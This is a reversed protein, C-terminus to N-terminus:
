CGGLDSPQPAIDATRRFWWASLQTLVEGKRPVPQRMVVDFASVRDSALLLLLDGVEYVDRVKGERHRPFPLSSRSVAQLMSLRPTNPPLLHARLSGKSRHRLLRRPPRIPAPARTLLRLRAAGQGRPVRGAPRCEAVRGDGDRLAASRHLPPWPSPHPRAAMRAATRLRGQRDGRGARAPRAAGSALVPGRVPERAHLDPFLRDLRQGLACRSPLRPSRRAGPRRPGGQMRRNWADPLDDVPLDGSLLARELDFRLMIHLNYTVEDSDVRILSPQVRNVVRFMQEPTFGAVSNGFLRHATPLAWRWFFSSRGVMNEWLRSQSEHIGLSASQGLPEGFHEGTPLGQEYLGHGAEHMSSSLADPFGIATYRTTLRTDGPGIDSCFPHTSTDLRGAQMSFGLARVVQQNFEVQAPIPIPARMPAEDPTVSSGAVRDILQRVRPRLADFTAQIADSRMGPEYDELLADYRQNGTPGAGLLEARERSLELVRELHPKFEAFDSRERASRWVEVAESTTRAFEGVFASPLRVARDFQRRAERVNAAVAGDRLLAADAECAALLDGIRTSTRREHALASVAALQEARAAGGAPPMMTEQDWSLLGVVSELVAARRLEGRLEVYESGAAPPPHAENEM